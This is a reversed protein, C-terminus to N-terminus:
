ATGTGGSIIKMIACERPSHLSDWGLKVSDHPNPFLKKAIQVSEANQHEKSATKTLLTRRVALIKARLCPSKECCDQRIALPLLAPHSCFPREPPTCHEYFRSGFSSTQHFGIDLDCLFGFHSGDGLNGGLQAKGILVHDGIAAVLGLDIVAQDVIGFLLALQDKDGGDAGGRRALALGGGAHTQGIGHVSQAFLGHEAQTLGAKAGHEADLATSGAAAVGLHHRHLVDVQVKGPVEVGNAGGVVQQSGHDVVADLLAVRQVDVGAADGPLAAHVHVVALQAEDHVTQAALHVAGRALVAKIDGNGTLHHGDETQGGANGVQFLAKGLDHAGVGVVALGDRGTLDARGTGHGGQQLVCQVRVEDLRQFVVGGDNVAAGEGVNGVAAVAHQGGLQAKRQGVVGDGLCAETGVQTGLLEQVDLAAICANCGTGAHQHGGHAGELAVAAHGLSVQVLGVELGDLGTGGVQNTM